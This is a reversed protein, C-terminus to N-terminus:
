ALVGIKKISKGATVSLLILVISNSRPPSGTKTGYYGIVFLQFLSQPGYPLEQKNGRFFPGTPIIATVSLLGKPFKTERPKKNWVLFAGDRFTKM